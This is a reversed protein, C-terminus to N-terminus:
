VFHPTNHQNLQSVLPSLYKSLTIEKYLKVIFPDTFLIKISVLHTLIIFLLRKLQLSPSLALGGFIPLMM